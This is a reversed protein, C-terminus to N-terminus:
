VLKPVAGSHELMCVCIYVVIFMLETHM